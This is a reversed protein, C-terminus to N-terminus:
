KTLENQNLAIYNLLERERILYDPIHERIKAQFTAGHNMHQLHLHEHVTIYEQLEPPLTALQNNIHITQDRVYGWRKTDVIRLHAPTELDYKQRIEEVKFRTQETLWQKLITEPLKGCTRIILKDDTLTVGKESSETDIIIERPKGDILIKGDDFVKVRKLYERHKRALLTMNRQIIAELDIEKATPLIVLLQDRRTFELDISKRARSSRQTIVEVDVDNLKIQM